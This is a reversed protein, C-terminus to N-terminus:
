PTSGEKAASLSVGAKSEGGAERLRDAIFTDTTLQGIHYFLMPLVALPFGRNRFTTEFLLLAVPLTKQSCSFAVAIRVPREFGLLRGSWLGCALAALHVGLCAAAAALVPGFALGSAVGGSRDWLREGLDVAAKLMILLILVQTVVGLPARCTEAARALPRVLRSLQGAGVPLVLCLLLDGMMKARADPGLAQGGGLASLWLPTVLWSTLTGMVIVLLATAENGGALRTWLVASALTCPVSAMVLLGVRYDDPGPLLRGALWALGPVLAYSLLLAWLAPLPRLLSRGLSRSELGWAMLFLAAAVLVQPALLWAFPRFAGPFVAAAAVATGLAILFWRRALFRTM